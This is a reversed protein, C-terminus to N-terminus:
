NMFMHDVITKCISTGCYKRKNIFMWMKDNFDWSKNFTKNLCTLIFALQNSITDYLLM